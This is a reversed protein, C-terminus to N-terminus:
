KAIQTGPYKLLVNKHLQDVSIMSIINSLPTRRMLAKRCFSFFSNKSDIKCKPGWKKLLHFKKKPLNSKTIPPNPTQPLAQSSLVWTSSNFIYQIPSRINNNICKKCPSKCSEQKISFSLHKKPPPHTSNKLYHHGTLTNLSSCLLIPKWAFSFTDLFPCWNQFFFVFFFFVPLNWYLQVKKRYVPQTRSFLLLMWIHCFPCM